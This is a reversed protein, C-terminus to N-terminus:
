TSVGSVVERFSSYHDSTYFRGGDQGAIIRRAGRDPSGPTIVTFERYWGSAHPPLLGERNSFTVGDKPYPYPGDSEILRLTDIGQKPLMAVTMVTLDSVPQAPALRVADPPSVVPKPQSIHSPTASATSPASGSSAGTGSYTATGGPTSGGCATLLVCTCALAVVAVLRRV